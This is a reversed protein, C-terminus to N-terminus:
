STSGGDENRRPKEEEVPAVPGQEPKPEDARPAGSPVAQGAALEAKTPASPVPKAVDMPTPGRTGSRQAKVRAVKARAEAIQPSSGKDLQDQLVQEYVADPDDVPERAAPPAAPPAAAPEPAPGRQIGREAKVRAVKARAEAVQPSSGKDLQEQLVQEYVAHPDDVPQLAVPHPAEHPVEVNPV